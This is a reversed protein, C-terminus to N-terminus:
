VMLPKLRKALTLAFFLKISDPLLYPLVCILFAQGLANPTYLLGYWFTACLYCSMMALVMAAWVPLRSELLWYVLGMLLFGWLYGGSPGLLMGFGGRFGTFVPIGVAGLLLYVGIAACGAKGGLCGLTLLVAFTQLSVAHEGLPISLWACVAIVAAFVACRTMNRIKMRVGAKRAYWIM